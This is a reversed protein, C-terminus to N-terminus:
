DKALLRDFVELVAPAALERDRRDLEAVVAVDFIIALLPLDQGVDVTHRAQVASAPQNEDGEYVAPMVPRLDAVVVDGAKAPHHLCEADGLGPRHVADVDAPPAIRDLPTRGPGREKRCEREVLALVRRM